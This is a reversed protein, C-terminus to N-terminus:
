LIVTVGWSIALNNDANIKIKKPVTKASDGSYVSGLCTFRLSACSPFNAM